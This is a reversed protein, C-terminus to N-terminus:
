ATFIFVSQENNSLLPLNNLLFNTIKFKVWFAHRSLCSLREGRLRVDSFSPAADNTHADGRPTNDLSALIKDPPVLVDRVVRDVSRFWPEHNRREKLERWDTAM